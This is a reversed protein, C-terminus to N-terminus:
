GIKYKYGPPKLFRYDTGMGQEMALEEVQQKVSKKFFEESKTSLLNKSTKESETDKVDEDSTKTNNM